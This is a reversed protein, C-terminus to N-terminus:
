AQLLILGSKSFKRVFLWRNKLESDKLSHVRFHGKKGQLGDCFIGGKSVM